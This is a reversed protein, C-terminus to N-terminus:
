DDNLGKQTNQNEVLSKWDLNPVNEFIQQGYGSLLLSKAKSEPIGRAMLYFLEEEDLQGITAGHAAKVDDAEVQLQPRTDVHAKKSLILNKNLQTADVQQADKHIHVMGNFVGRSDGDLIGKFLQSSRTHSKMHNITLTTDHHQEDKVQYFGALNAEANEELLNVIFDIRSLKERNFNQTYNFTSDRKQAVDFRNTIIQNEILQSNLHYNLQANQELIMSTSGNSWFDAKTTSIQQEYIEINSNKGIKFYLRPQICRKVAKDTYIFVLNIKVDESLEFVYPKKHGNRIQNIMELSDTTSRNYSNDFNSKDHTMPINTSEQNLNGNIFLITRDGFSKLNQPLKMDSTEIDRIDLKEPLFKNLATYKWFENKTSPLGNTKFSGLNELTKADNIKNLSIYDELSQIYSTNLETINM